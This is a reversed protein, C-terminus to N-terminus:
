HTDAPGQEGLWELARTTAAALGADGLGLGTMTTGEAFDEPSQIYATLTEATWTGSVNKLAESYQSFASSAIGSGFVKYLSPGSQQVNQEYSHCQGCGRLTEEAVVALDGLEPQLAAAMGELPDPREEIELVVVENTDLWLVIQTDSVQMVDRIRQGIPIEELFVMRDDQIRARMLKRGRLSGILLDGDWAEHFGDVLALSSTAVSPLWSYIPADFTEHRGIGSPSELPAGSYFTGLTEIPWGYNGGELVLNLEDGGRMGHETVWLRGEADLTVGQLNRHGKSFVRSQRTELNIEITKGYDSNDDQIGADPRHLGDLHYEGNGLYLLNPAKFALRGGAMYALMLERTENFALCPKSDFLLEWDSAAASLDRISGTSQPIPLWSVRSSYCENEVDVFTYSLLLGRLAGSDIFELDNYRLADIRTPRGPYKTATLEAYGARGNDPMKLDTTKILEGADEDLYMVLGSKHMILVDEGWLALAGGNQFDRDPMTYVTGRLRLFITDIRDVFGVTDSPAGLIRRAKAEAREALSYVPDVQQKHVYYGAILALGVVAGALGLFGTVRLFRRM